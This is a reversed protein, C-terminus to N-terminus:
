RWQTQRKNGGEHTDSEPEEPTFADAGKADHIIDCFELIAAVVTGRLFWAILAQLLATFYRKRL